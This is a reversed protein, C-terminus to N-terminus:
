RGYVGKKASPGPYLNYSFIEHVDGRNHVVVQKGQFYTHRFVPAVYIIVRPDFDEPIEDRPLIGQLLALALPFFAANAPAVALADQGLGRWGTRFAFVALERGALWDFTQARLGAFPEGYREEFRPKDSPLADAVVMSEPDRRRMYAEAYNVSIGNRVRVVTAELFPKGDPLEYAVELSSQGTGGCALAFLDGTTDAIRVGPAREFVRSLESPPHFVDWPHQV